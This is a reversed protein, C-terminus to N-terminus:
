CIGEITKYYFPSCVVEGNNKVVNKCLHEQSSYEYKTYNCTCFGEDSNDDHPCDRIHDCVHRYSIYTGSHCRFVNDGVTYRVIDSTCVQFGLADSALTTHQYYWYIKTHRKYKFVNVISDNSKHASIIAPIVTSIADFLFQFQSINFLDLHDMGYHRCRHSLDNEPHFYFWLFLYCNNKWILSEISCSKKLNDGKGNHEFTTKEMGKTVCLVDTLIRDTCSVSIWEPEALNSLLMMTCRKTGSVDPYINSMAERKVRRLDLCHFDNFSNISLINCKYSIAKDLQNNYNTFRQYAM